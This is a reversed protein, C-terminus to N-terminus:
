KARGCTVQQPLLAREDGVGGRPLQPQLRSHGRQPQKAAGWIGRRPDRPASQAPIPDTTTRPTSPDMAVRRRRGLRRISQHDGTFPGPTSGLAAIKLVRGDNLSAQQGRAPRACPATQATFRRPVNQPRQRGGRSRHPASQGHSHRGSNPVFHPPFRRIWRRIRVQGACWWGCVTTGCGACAAWTREHATDRQM